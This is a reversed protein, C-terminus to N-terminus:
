RALPPVKPPQGGRMISTTNPRPPESLELLAFDSPEDNALLTCGSVTQNTSTM